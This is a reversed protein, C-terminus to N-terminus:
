GNGYWKEAYNSIKSPTTSKTSSTSNATKKPKRKDKGAEGQPQEVHCNAIWGGTSLTMNCSKIRYTGDSLSDAGSLVLPAGAFINADGDLTVTGTGDARDAGDKESTASQKAEAETARAGPRQAKAKGDEKQDVDAIAWEGKEFDFWPASQKQYNARSVRPTIQWSILNVGWTAQVTPLTQGSVSQGSNAAVLVPVRGFLKFRAGLEKAIRYSGEEFSEGDFLEDDRIIKAISQDIKPTMLDAKKAADGLIHEISKRKYSLQLPEKSKSTPDGSSCNVTCIRGGGVSGSMAPRDVFGIFRTVMGARTRGIRIMVPDNKQPGFIRDDTNDLTISATDSGEGDADNITISQVDSLSSGSIMVSGGVIVEYYFTQM